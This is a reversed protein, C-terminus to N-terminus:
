SKAPEALYRNWIAKDGLKGRFAAHAEVDDQTLAPELPAARSTVAQKDLTAKKRTESSLAFTTQRGGM